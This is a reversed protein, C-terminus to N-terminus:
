TAGAGAAAGSRAAGSSLSRYHGVWRAAVKSWDFREWVFARAREGGASLRLSEDGLWRDIEDALLKADSKVVSGVGAAAIEHHIAVGDSIIVPTGCALAEVVSIGFNEHESPLAFLDADVLAEIRERGRLMGTFLVHGSVGLQEIQREITARFGGSDPGVAVLMADRDRVRAFAPVLYEMGKGPHLRGLFMVVKRGALVPHKARFTGKQPLTQFERLDVGLPEVIAPPKLGVAASADREHASTYHIAAARSLTRRLRLALYISKKLRKQGLSWPTLMGHPTILYPRHLARAIRAAHHQVDEWLGHAHVVEAAEIMGRLTSALHRHSALPGRAPGILTVHVGHHDLEDAIDRGEGARWTALATVELGAERQARCLGAMAMAPGGSRADVGPIVHLVRTM